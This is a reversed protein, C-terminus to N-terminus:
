HAHNRVAETEPAFGDLYLNSKMKMEEPVILPFSIRETKIYSKAMGSKGTALEIAKALMPDRTDGFPVARILDDDIEYDPPLGDVFDTYGNANAYKSVIPIIAWKEADDPMVWAGAYKGYTPEGIKIVDMYPDLGVIVLESASATGSTTLFYVRDM